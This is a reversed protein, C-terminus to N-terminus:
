ILSNQNTNNWANEIEESRAIIDNARNRLDNICKNVEEINTSRWYGNKPTSLIVYGQQIAYRILQRTQVQNGWTPYGLSRAIDKAHIANEKGFPIIDLLRQLEQSNDIM